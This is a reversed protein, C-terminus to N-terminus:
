RVRVSEAKKVSSRYKCLRRLSGAQGLLEYVGALSAWVRQPPNLSQLGVVEVAKDIAQELEM